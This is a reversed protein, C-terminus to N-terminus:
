AVCIGKDRLTREVESIAVNCEGRFKPYINYWNVATSRMKYIATNANIGLASAIARRLSKNIGGGVLSAPSYLNLILFVFQKNNANGDGCFDHERATEIYWGHIKEIMGLDVMRAKFVASFQLHAEAVSRNAEKLDDIARTYKDLVNMDKDNVNVSELLSVPSGGLWCLPM